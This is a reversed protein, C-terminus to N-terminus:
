QREMNLKTFKAVNSAIVTKQEDTLLILANYIEPVKHLMSNVVDFSRISLDRTQQESAKTLNVRANNLLIKCSKAIKLNGNDNFIQKKLLKLDKNYQQGLLIAENEIEIYKAKAQQEHIAQKYDYVDITASEALMTLTLANFLMVHYDTLQPKNTDM